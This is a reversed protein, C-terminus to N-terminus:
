RASFFGCGRCRAKRRCYRLFLKGYLFAMVRPICILKCNPAIGSKDSSNILSAIGVGGRNPVDDLITSASITGDICIRGGGGRNALAYTKSYRIQQIQLKKEPSLSMMLRKMRSCLMKAEGTAGDVRHGDYRAVYKGKKAVANKVFVGRGKGLSDRIEVESGVVSVQTLLHEEDPFDLDFENESSLNKATLLAEKKDSARKKQRNSEAVKSQRQEEETLCQNSPAASHLIVGIGSALQHNGIGSASQHYGDSIFKQAAKITERLDKNGKCPSVPPTPIRLYSAALNRADELDILRATTNGQLFVNQASFSVCESCSGSGIHYTSGKATKCGSPCFAEPVAVRKSSRQPFM